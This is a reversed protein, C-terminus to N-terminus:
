YIIHIFIHMNYPRRVRRGCRRHESSYSRTLCPLRRPLFELSGCSRLLPRTRELTALRARLALAM